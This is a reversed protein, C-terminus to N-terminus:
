DGHTAAFTACRRRERRYSFQADGRVRVTAGASDRATLDLRLALPETELVQITGSAIRAVFEGAEVAVLASDRPARPMVGWGASDLAGAVRLMQGRRLAAAHMVAIGGPDTNFAPVSWVVAPSVARGRVLTQTLSDFAERTVNTPTLTAALQESTAIGGREITAPWTVELEEFTCM